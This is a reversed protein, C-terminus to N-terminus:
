SLSSIMPGLLVFSLDLRVIPRFLHHLLDM